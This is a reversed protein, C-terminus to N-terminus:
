SEFGGSGTNSVTNSFCSSISPAKSSAACPINSTDGSGFRMRGNRGSSTAWTRSANAVRRQKQRERASALSSMVAYALGNRSGQEMAAYQSDDVSQGFAAATREWQDVLALRGIETELLLATSSASVLFTLALIGAWRPSRVVAEFAARPAGIVAIVRAPLSPLGADNEPAQASAGPTAGSPGQSM